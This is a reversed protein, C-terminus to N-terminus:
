IPLVVHANHQDHGEIEVSCKKVSAHLNMKNNDNM